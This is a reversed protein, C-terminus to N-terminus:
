LQGLNEPTLLRFEARPIRVVSSGGGRMNTGGGTSVWSAYRALEDYTIFWWSVLNRTAVADIERVVFLSHLNGRRAAYFALKVFPGVDLGFYEGINVDRAVTKEKIELPYTFQQGWFIGDVDATEAYFRSRVTVMLHEKSFEEAVVRDPILAADTRGRLFNYNRLRPMFRDAFCDPLDAIPQEIPLGLQMARWRISQTDNNDRAEPYCFFAHIGTQHFTACITHLGVTPVPAPRGVPYDVGVTLVEPFLVVTQHGFDQRNRRLIWGGQSVRGDFGIQQLHERFDLEALLGNLKNQNLSPISRSLYARM